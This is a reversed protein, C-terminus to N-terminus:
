GSVCGKFDLGVNSRCINKSPLISSYLWLGSWHKQCCLALSPEVRSHPYLPAFTLRCTGIGSSRVVRHCWLLEHDDGVRFACDFLFIGEQLVGSTVRKKLWTYQNCGSSPNNLHVYVVPAVSCSKLGYVILVYVGINCVCCRYFMVCM